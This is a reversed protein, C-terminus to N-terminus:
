SIIDGAIERGTAGCMRGHGRMSGHTRHATVTGSQLVPAPWILPFHARASYSVRWHCGVLARGVHRLVRLGAGAGHGVVATGRPPGAGSGERSAGECTRSSGTSPCSWCQHGVAQPHLPLWMQRHKKRRGCTALMTPARAATSMVVMCSRPARSGVLCPSTSSRHTLVAPDHPALM